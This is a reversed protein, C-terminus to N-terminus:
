INPMAVIKLSELKHEVFGPEVTVFAQKLVFTWVGDLNRYMSLDGKILAKTNAHWQQLSPKVSVVGGGQVAENMCSDFIQLITEADDGECHLEELVEILARGLGCLRYHQQYEKMDAQGDM